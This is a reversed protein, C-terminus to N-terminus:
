PTVVACAASTWFHLPDDDIQIFHLTDDDMQIGAKRQSGHAPFDATQMSIPLDPTILSAQPQHVPAKPQYRMRGFLTSSGM